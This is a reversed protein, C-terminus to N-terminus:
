HDWEPFSGSYVIEGTIDSAFEIVMGPQWGTYHCPEGDFVIEDISEDGCDAFAVREAVKRFFLTRYQDDTYEAPRNVTCTLWQCDSDCTEIVYYSAHSRREQKPAAAFHEPHLIREVADSVDPDDLVVGELWDRVEPWNAFVLDQLNDDTFRLLEGDRDTGLYGYGAARMARCLLETERYDYDLNQDDHLFDQKGICRDCFVMFDNDDSEACHAIQNMGITCGCCDCYYYVNRRASKTVTWHKHAARDGTALAADLVDELDGDLEDDSLDDDDEAHCDAIYQDRVSDLWTYYSPNESPEAHLIGTEPDYCDRVYEVSEGADFRREIELCLDMDQVTSDSLEDALACAIAFNSDRCINLAATLSDLNDYEPYSNSLGFDKIDSSLYVNYNGVECNYNDADRQTTAQYITYGNIAKIRKM